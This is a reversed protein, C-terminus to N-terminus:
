KKRFLQNFEAKNSDQFSTMANQNGTQKIVDQDNKKEQETIKEIEALLHDIKQSYKGTQTNLKQYGEGGGNVDKFVSLQTKFDESETIDAKNVFNALAQINNNRYIERQKEKLDFYTKQVHQKKNSLFLNISSRVGEVKESLFDKFYPADPPPVRINKPEIPTIKTQIPKIFKLEEGKPIKCRYVQDIKTKVDETYKVLEHKYRNYIDDKGPFRDDRKMQDVLAKAELMYAYQFGIWGKTKEIDHKTALIGITRVLCNFNYNYYNALIDPYIDKFNKMLKRDSKLNERCIYFWKAIEHELSALNEGTVAPNSGDEFMYFFCLYSLGEMLALLFELSTPRLEFPVKMVKSLEPNIKIMEKCAWKAYRLKGLSGKYQDKSQKSKLYIVAQNFNLIAYNFLMNSIEFLIHNSKVKKQTWSMMWDAAFSRVCDKGKGFKFKTSLFICYRLYEEINDQVVRMQPKHFAESNTIDDWNFGLRVETLRKFTPEVRQWDQPKKLTNCVHQKFINVFDIPRAKSPNFKHIM